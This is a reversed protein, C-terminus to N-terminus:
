WKKKGRKETPRKKKTKKKKPKNIMKDINTLTDSIKKIFHIIKRNMFFEHTVMLIIYFIIITNIIEMIIMNPNINHYTLLTTLGNIILLIICLKTITRFLFSKIITELIIGMEKMTRKM